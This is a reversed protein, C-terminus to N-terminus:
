LDFRWKKISFLFRILLGKKKQKEIYYENEINSKIFFSFPHLIKSNELKGNHFM